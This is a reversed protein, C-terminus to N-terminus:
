TRQSLNNKIRKMKEKFRFLERKKM